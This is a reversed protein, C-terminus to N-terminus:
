GERLGSLAVRVDRDLFLRVIALILLLPRDIRVRAMIEGDLVERDFVPTVELSVRTCGLLPLIAWYWGYLIGTHAPDRFGVKMRGRIEELTMGHLIKGGLSVLPRALRLLHLLRGPSVPTKRPEEEVGPPRAEEEEKVTRTYLPHDGLLLEQRSEGGETRTRAGIWGWSAQILFYGSEPTKGLAVRAIVPILFLALLLILFLLIGIGVVLLFVPVM